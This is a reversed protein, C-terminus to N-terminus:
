IMAPKAALFQLFRVYTYVHFTAGNMSCVFWTTKHEKGGMRNANTPDTASESASCRQPVDDQWRM